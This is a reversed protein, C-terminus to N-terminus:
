NKSENTDINKWDNRDYHYVMMAAIAFNIYVITIAMATSHETDISGLLVFATMAWIGRFLMGKKM